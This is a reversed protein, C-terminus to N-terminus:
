MQRFNAPPAPLNAPEKGNLNFGFFELPHPKGQIENTLSM